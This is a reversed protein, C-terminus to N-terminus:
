SQDQTLDLIDKLTVPSRETTLALATKRLASAVDSTTEAVGSAQAVKKSTRATSASKIIEQIQEDITLM